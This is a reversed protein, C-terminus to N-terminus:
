CNGLGAVDALHCISDASVVWRNGVRTLAASLAVFASTKGLVFSYSLSATDGQVAVDTIVIHINRYLHTALQTLKARLALANEQHEVYRAVAANPRTYDYVISFDRMVAREITDRAKHAVPTHATPRRVHSPAAGTVLRPDFTELRGEADVAYGTEGVFAVSPAWVRAVVRVTRPDIKFLMQPLQANAPVGAVWVYGAGYRMAGAYSLVPGDANLDLTELSHHVADVRGVFGLDKWHAWVERGLMTVDVRSLFSPFTYTNGTALNMIAIQYACELNIVLLDATPQVGGKSGCPPVTRTQPSGATPVVRTVGMLTNKGTIQDTSWRQHGLWLPGHLNVDTPMDTRSGPPLAVVSRVRLTIPDLFRAESRVGDLTVIGADTIGSALGTYPFGAPPHRVTYSAVIRGTKPDLRVFRLQTGNRIVNGYLHTGDSSLGSIDLAAGPIPTLALRPIGFRALAVPLASQPSSAPRPKPRSSAKSQCGASVAVLFVLAAGRLRLPV